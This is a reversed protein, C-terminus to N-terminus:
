KKQGKWKGASYLVAENLTLARDASGLVLPGPLLVLEILEDDNLWEDAFVLAHPDLDGHWAISDRDFPCISGDRDRKGFARSGSIPFFKKIM